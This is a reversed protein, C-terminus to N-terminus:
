DAHSGGIREIEALIDPHPAFWEGHLRHEAFRRHYERELKPLGTVTAHVLLPYPNMLRLDNLRFKLRSAMGIKIPGCEPGIFYITVLKPEPRYEPIIQKDNTQVFVPYCFVGDGCDKKPGRIYVKRGARIHRAEISDAPWDSLETLHPFKTYEREVM